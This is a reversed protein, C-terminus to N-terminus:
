VVREEVQRRALGGARRCPTLLRLLHPPDGPPDPPDQM